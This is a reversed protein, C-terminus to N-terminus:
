VGPDREARLEAAFRWLTRRLAERQPRRVLLRDILGPRLRPDKPEYALELTVTVGGDHPSFRV